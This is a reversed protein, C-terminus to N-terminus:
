SVESNINISFYRRSPSNTSLKYLIICQWPFYSQCSVIQRGESQPFSLYQTITLTKSSTSVLPSQFCKTSLDGNGCLSVVKQSCTEKVLLVRTGESCTDVRFPFFKSGKNVRFPFFKSGKNIRFPFFKSGKNVRFPFFKRGLPATVHDSSRQARHRHVLRLWLCDSSLCLVKYFLFLCTNLFNM